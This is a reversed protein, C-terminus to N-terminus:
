QMVADQMQLFKVFQRRFLTKVNKCIPIRIARRDNTKILKTPM